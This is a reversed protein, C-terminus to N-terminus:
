VNHTTIFLLEKMFALTLAAGLSNGVYEGYHHDFQIFVYHRKEPKRIHKKVCELAAQWSIKIQENLREEIEKGSPSIHFKTEHKEQKIQISITELLGFSNRDNSAAQELVPFYLEDKKGGTISGGDLIIKLQEYKKELEEKENYLKYIFQNLSIEKLLLNIQSLIDETFVPDIGMPEFHHLCKLYKEIFEPLYSNKIQQNQSDLIKNYYRFLYLLRKRPSATLTFFKTLKVKEQEILLIDLYNAWGL